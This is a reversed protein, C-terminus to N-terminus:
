WRGRRLHLQALGERGRDPHDTRQQQQPDPCQQISRQGGDADTAQDPPSRLHHHRRRGLPCHGTVGLDLRRHEPEARDCEASPVSAMGPTGTRWTGSPSSSRAARRYRGRGAARSDYVRWRVGVFFYDFRGPGTVNVNIYYGVVDAIVQVAAASNNRVPLGGSGDPVVLLQGQETQGAAFSMTSTKVLLDTPGVTLSGARGPALVTVNVVM